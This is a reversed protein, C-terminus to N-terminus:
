LIQANLKSKHELLKPVKTKVLNQKAIKSHEKKLEIGVYRRNSKKAVVATTGSGVFPDLVVDGEKTFLKIFWDPLEEPFVASHNFNKCVPAFELVNDPYVYKRGKWNLLNRGLGSNTASVSRVVDNTSLNTMRKKAWEGVPKMVNNQYMSFKNNKTFHLCREWADRFRNPWKGPMSTKKHWIYEEIWLWNQKRLALILELVYIQREGNAGEKINLIFSGSPKLVRFLKKSIPLFWDVYKDPPVGGYNKKRKNAYPPSTIILDISEDPVKDLVKNADGTYIQNLKFKKM